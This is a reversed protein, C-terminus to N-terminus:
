QAPLLALSSAPHRPTNTEFRCCTISCRARYVGNRFITTAATSVVGRDALQYRRGGDPGNIEFTESQAVSHGSFRKANRKQIIPRAHKVALLINLSMQDLRSNSNDHDPTCQMWLHLNKPFFVHEGYQFGVFWLHWGGLGGKGPTVFRKGNAFGIHDCTVRHLAGNGSWRSIATNPMPHKQPASRRNQFTSPTYLM